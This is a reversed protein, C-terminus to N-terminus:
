FICHLEHITAFIFQITDFIFQIVFYKENKMEIWVSASLINLNYNKKTLFIDM